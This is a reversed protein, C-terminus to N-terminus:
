FAVEVGSPDLFSSVMNEDVTWLRKEESGEGWMEAVEFENLFCMERETPERQAINDPTNLAM